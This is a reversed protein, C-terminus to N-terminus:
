GEYFSDGVMCTYNKMLIQTVHHEKGNVGVLCFSTNWSEHNKTFHFVRRNEPMRNQNEQIIGRSGFWGNIYSTYVRGSSGTKAVMDTRHACNWIHDEDMKKTLSTNALNQSYSPPSHQIFLSTNEVRYRENYPLWKIGLRDLDLMKEIRVFNWFVPCNAMVFRDLRYEHNGMIFIIETNKFRKVLNSLFEQGWFFEDELNLQVDPDKPGHANINYFDVIDGNLVIHTVGVDEFIDLALAVARKDEWPGHIDGLVGYLAM